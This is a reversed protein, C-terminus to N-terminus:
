LIREGPDDVGREFILSPGFTWDIEFFHECGERQSFNEKEGAMVIVSALENCFCCKAALYIDGEDTTISDAKAYQRSYM